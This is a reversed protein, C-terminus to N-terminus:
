SNNLFKILCSELYLNKIFIKKEDINLRIYELKREKNNIFNNLTLNIFLELSELLGKIYKEDRYVISVKITNNFKEVLRAQTLNLIWMYIQIQTKEYDRLNSFFGKVRNKVEVVYSNNYDVPDIYMGDVRGCIRYEIGNIHCMNKSIFDQSTDLKINFKEEYQRIANNEYKIGHSTNIYGRATKALETDKQIKDQIIIEKKNVPLSSDKLLKLTDEDLNKVLKQETTLTINDLNKKLTDQVIPNSSQAIENELTKIIENYNEDNKKWFKEFPTIYDWKNQGIFSSIDSTNIWKTISSM